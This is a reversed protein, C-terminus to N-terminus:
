FRQGEILLNLQSETINIKRKKISENIGQAKAMIKGLNKKITRLAFNKRRKLYKRPNKVSNDSIFSFSKLDWDNIKFDKLYTYLDYLQTDELKGGNKLQIYSDHTYAQIEDISSCYLFNGISTEQNRVGDEYFGDQNINKMKSMYSYYLHKLEHVVYQYLIKEDKFRVTLDLNGMGDHYDIAYEDSHYLYGDKISLEENAYFPVEASFREDDYSDDKYYVADIWINGIFGVKEMTFCVKTFKDTDIYDESDGNKMYEQIQNCILTATELVNDSVGLSEILRMM